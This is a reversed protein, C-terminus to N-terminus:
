KIMIIKLPGEFLEKASMECVLCRMMIPDNIWKHFPWGNKTHKAMFEEHWKM